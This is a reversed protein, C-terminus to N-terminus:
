ERSIGHDDCAARYIERSKGIHRDAGRHGLPSAQHWLHTMKVKGVYANSWDHVKAHLSCFTEEYYHRTPLFAGLAREETLRECTAQYTPCATLEDWCERKVFYAAGSVTVTGIMIDNYQGRDQQHWGRHVPRRNTGIVGGHTIRNQKDVQRPGAIGVEPYRRLFTEMASISGSPAIVDANFLALVESTLGEAAANMARAYGLNEANNVVIADHQDAMEEATSVDIARPANNVIVFSGVDQRQEGVSTCFAALDEPTRYNCVVVDVPM